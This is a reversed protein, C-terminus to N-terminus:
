YDANAQQKRIQIMNESAQIALGLTSIGKAKLLELQRIFVDATVMADGLATHRGHVQVGLRDALGDLTHDVMDEHLYVSLLLTDLVPNDFWVGSSDEKLQLFRMDFAANHAVLVAGSCFAKFLPLVTDIDSADKVMDDNIGHINISAQPIPKGPNVFEQFVEGSLIRGNVIRVGAISIIEDGQSPHLGTTETDFVVFTLNSLSSAALRGLEKTSAEPTFDYFEPREPIEEQPKQWQRPSISVPLRLLSQGNIRHPQSWIAGGHREVVEGLTLTGGGLIAINQWLEVTVAPIPDGTWIFDLYVLNDGMLSEVTIDNNNTIHSIHIAITELAMLLVPADVQVWLPEGKLVVNPGNKKSLQRDLTAFLDSIHTDSLMWHDSALVQAEQNLTYFMDSLTAIEFSVINNFKDRTQEDMNSNTLNEAATRISAMPTRFKELSTRILQDNRQLAEMKKTVEALTMVFMDQTNTQCPLLSMACDLMTDSNAIACFFRAEDVKKDSEVDVQGILQSITTEVPLRTLLGYLSRGLGLDHSYDRFLDQIASNYLMIRAESDCVIIGIKLQKIVMELREVGQAGTALAEAVERRTQNLSDGLQQVTDPLEGLWHGSDVNIKRNSDAQAMIAIDRSLTQAPVILSSELWSWIQGLVLFLIVIAAIGIGGHQKFWALMEPSVAPMDNLARWFLIALTSVTILLFGVYMWWFKTRNSM